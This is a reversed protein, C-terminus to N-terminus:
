PSSELRTYLYDVIRDRHITALAEAAQLRLADSEAANKLLSSLYDDVVSATGSTQFARVAALLQEKPFNALEKALWTKAVVSDHRAAALLITRRDNAALQPDDLVEALLARARLRRQVIAAPTSADDNADLSCAFYAARTAPSASKPYTPAADEPHLNSEACLALLSDLEAPTRQGRLLMDLVESAAAKPLTHMVDLVLQAGGPRGFLKAVLAPHLTGDGALRPLLSQVSGTPEVLLRSALAAEARPSELTSLAILAQARIELDPSAVFRAAAADLRPDRSAAIARLAALAITKQESGGTIAPRRALLQQLHTVLAPRPFVVADQQELLYALAEYRKSSPADGSKGGASTLIQDLRSGATPDSLRSMAVLAAAVAAGHAAPDDVVTHLTALARTDRILGLARIAAVEVSTEHTSSALAMLPLVARKSESSALAAAACVKVAPSGTDLLRVLPSLALGKRQTVAEEEDFFFRFAEAVACQVKPEPDDLLPILWAVSREIEGRQCLTVASLRVSPAPDRLADRVLALHMPDLAEPLNKLIQSRGNEPALRWLERLRDIGVLDGSGDLLIHSLSQVTEISGTKAKASANPPAAPSFHKAVLTEAKRDLTLILDAAVDRFTSSSGDRWDVRLEDIRSAAGLGLHVRPDGQSLFHHPAEVVRTLTLKGVRATVKAGYIEADHQATHLDLVLWHNPSRDATYIELADNNNAVVLELQGDNDLDTAIAGRSSHPRSGAPGAPQLRLNGHRDNLFLSSPQAQPVFPANSDPLPLGNGVYLDQYGDNNLDAAVAAWGALPLLQAGAVGRDWAVDRYKDENPVFTLLISPRGRGRTMFVEQLGDNDFDALTVDHSGPVEFTGFPAGTRAFHKGGQNLYLQNPTDHDNVVFLDPWHDGNVDAWRAGLGRGVADAVGMERGVDKFELGGENHYLRHPEADYLTQDYAGDTATRFGSTREFTKAGKDYLIYNSVYVDLLGDGDYDALSAGTSWHDNAIGTTTSVDDFTADGHNRFVRNGKIGTVILDAFGDNDLDGVSCAMGWMSVDLKAHATVDEFHHGGKNQLLRNGHKERWWSRRGYERTHGSGAVVFLDMWGDRDFDIACVGGGLTEGISSLPDSSQEHAAAVNWDLGVERLTFPAPPASTASTTSKRALDALNAVPAAQHALIGGLALLCALVFPLQQRV